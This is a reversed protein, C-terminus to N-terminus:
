SNKVNKKLISCIRLIENNTIGVSSPLNLGRKSCLETNILKDGIVKESSYAEMKHIPYFFPRCIVGEDNMVKILEDRAIGYEEFVEVCNLWQCIDDDENSEPFKIGMLGNLENKYLTTIEKKRIIFKELQELQALGFAALINPMRYNFGIENHIISGNELVTKTQNKLHDIRKNLDEDDTCIMGGAGTTMLKNGNFSYCGIHGFSGAMKGRKTSGLAETADEIVYLNFKHAIEMIKDMNAIIGYLHVPIIAKTKDNVVKEIEKPDITYNRSDVDVFVVKAGVYKVVNVTSIFTLSPVIVEDGKGINLAALALHLAATGNIVANSYKIGTVRSFEEEFKNLYEGGTSSVWGSEICERVYEIENGKIEPVCLPVVKNM